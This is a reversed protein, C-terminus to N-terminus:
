CTESAPLGGEEHYTHEHTVRSPTPGPPINSLASRHSFMFCGSDVGVGGVMDDGEERIYQANHPLVTVGPGEEEITEEACKERASKM